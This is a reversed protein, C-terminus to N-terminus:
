LACTDTRLNLSPSRTGLLPTALLDTGCTSPVTSERDAKRAKAEYDLPVEAARIDAACGRAKDYYRPTM